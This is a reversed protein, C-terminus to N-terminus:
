MVGLFVVGEKVGDLVFGGFGLRSWAFLCLLCVLTGRSVKPPQRLLRAPSILPSFGHAIERRREGRNHFLQRALVTQSVVWHPRWLGPLPPPYSNADVSGIEHNMRTVAIDELGRLGLLCFRFSTIDDSARQIKPCHLVFLRPRKVALAM